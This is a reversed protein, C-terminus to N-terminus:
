VKKREQVAMLRQQNMSEEMRASGDVYRQQKMSEEKRFSVRVGQHNISVEM